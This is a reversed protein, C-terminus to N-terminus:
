RTKIRKRKPKITAKIKSKLVKLESQLIKIKKRTVSLKPYYILRVQMDSSSDIINQYKSLEEQYVVIISTLQTIKEEM